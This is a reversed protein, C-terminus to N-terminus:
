VVGMNALMKANYYAKLRANVNNDNIAPVYVKEGCKECKASIEPYSFSVGRVTLDRNEECLIYFRWKNCETCFGKPQYMM